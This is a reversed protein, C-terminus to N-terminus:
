DVDRVVMMLMDGRQVYGRNTHALVMGDHAFAIVESPRRPELVYHLTGAIDGAKVDQGAQARRDFVGEGPAYLSHEASTIEVKRPAPLAEVQGQVVGVHRLVRMLGAETADTIVPDVGGCGGLEAAIMPVGAREAASNVSRADNFSGLVWIHPLGFVEALELNRAYLAADATRTPLTCPTFFSASGGSHLDVAADAMPLLATEVYYAVQDTVGGMPNGPFARNLNVGDLPSVRAAQRVAPANLAPIAIIQGRIEDPQLAGMVRMIASPGEFEDGHTGAILVVVPGAGNRLSLIPVPHYGLPVSNDSWRVRLDGVHRGDAGLDITPTVASKTM